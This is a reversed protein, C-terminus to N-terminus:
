SLHVKDSWVLQVPELLSAGGVDVRGIEAPSWVPLVEVLPDIPPVVVHRTDGTSAHCLHGVLQQVVILHSRVGNASEMVDRTAIIVSGEAQHRTEGM